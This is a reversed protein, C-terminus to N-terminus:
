NILLNSDVVVEIGNEKFKDIIKTINPRQNKYQYIKESSSAYSWFYRNKFDYYGIKKILYGDVWYQIEEDGLNNVVVEGMDTRAPHKTTQYVYYGDNLVKKLDTPEKYDFSTTFLAEDDKDISTIKVCRNNKDFVIEAYPKVKFLCTDSQTATSYKHGPIWKSTKKSKKFREKHQVDELAEQYEKMDKHLVGVAGSERAFFVKQQCVGNVFTSQKLLNILIKSAIGIVYRKGDKELVCNWFSLKGGQSSGDADDFLTLAFGDNEFEDTHYEKSKNAWPAKAWNIASEMRDKNGTDVVYAQPAHVDNEIWCQNSFDYTSLNNPRSVITVNDFLIWSM